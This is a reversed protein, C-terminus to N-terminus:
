RPARETVLREIVELYRETVAAWGFNSATHLRARASKASLLDPDSYYRMIAGVFGDAAGSEILHGNEGESIVDSIGEIDSAIVPLGCLGAELMVLGFGEMDNAVTVNPMLFLDSGRYITELLEDSVRGLLTVRDALSHRAIAAEIRAREPGEGAVVFHVDAPLGPMVNSVLWEVGKRPVLRGVSCLILGRAATARRSQMETVLAERTSRRDGGNSFRDTRIGLSVVQSKSPPLGRAHCAEATARSIPLIIDVSEFIKKVLLPYPWTPTTADLGNAIAATVIGNRRLVSRLPVALAATVMSSFLIADIKKERALLRIERLARAMFIPTMYGARSWPARLVLASATVGGHALLSDHLDIAVRQMGGVNDLPRGIPPLSHSVFLLRM